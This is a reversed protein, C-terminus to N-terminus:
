RSAGKGPPFLPLRSRFGWRPNVESRKGWRVPTPEFECGRLDSLLLLLTGPPSVAALALKVVIAKGPLSGGNSIAARVQGM